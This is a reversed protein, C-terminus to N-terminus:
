SKRVTAELRPEFYRHVLVRLALIRSGSPNM